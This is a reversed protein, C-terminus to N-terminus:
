GVPLDKNNEKAYQRMNYEILRWVLLSILLVLALVEIHEAKKLFISNVIPTNKIFGFNQEIGYQDKCARLIDYSSYGKDGSVPVNCLLVFCGTEKKLERDIRNQRRKDHASSHIM